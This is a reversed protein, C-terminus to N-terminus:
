WVGSYGLNVDVPASNKSDLKVQTGPPAAPINVTVRAHNTNTAGKPAVAGPAARAAGLEPGKISLNANVDEPMASGIARLIKVFTGLKPVLELVDLIRNKFNFLEDGLQQWIIKLGGVVDDWNKWLLRAALALAGVMITVVGIPSAWMAAGLAWIAPVLAVIAAALPILRAVVLVKLLNGWGGMLEALSKIMGFVESLGKGFDMLGKGFEAIKQGASEAWKQLTGDAAMRNVTDLFKQLNNKLLDFVGAGMVMSTFRTWQDSLNSIMGNWTKSQKESAGASAKGMEIILARIASRGLKGASSAKQLEATTRGSAKALLDWVPVGREMLQLAEEGQLKQKTWAQGLALVTGNLMDLDGGMKSAQDVIAQFTGDMPDLGFNKLKIFSNMVDQLELPTRAAFDNIWKFSEQAKANSGEVSELMVMYKEFLAATDIFQSKFFWGAAGGVIAFDRGLSRVSGAVNGFAKGMGKAAATIKGLGAAELGLRARNNILRLKNAIGSTAKLKTSFARLPATAKDLMTLVVQIKNQAM